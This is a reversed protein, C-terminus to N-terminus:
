GQMQATKAALQKLIPQLENASGRVQTFLDYWEKPAFLPKSTTAHKLFEQLYVRQSEAMSDSWDMRDMELKQVHKRANALQTVLNQADSILSDVSTLVINRTNAQEQDDKVDDSQEQHRRRGDALCTKLELLLPDRSDIWRETNRGMAMEPKSMWAMRKQVDGRRSEFEVCLAELLHSQNRVMQLETEFCIALFQLRAQEEYLVSAFQNLKALHGEQREMKTLYDAMLVPDRIESEAIAEWLPNLVISRSQNISNRLAQLSNEISKETDKINPPDFSLDQMDKLCEIKKSTFVQELLADVYQKETISFISVLRDLENQVDQKLEDQGKLEKRSTGASQVLKEIGGDFYNAFEENLVEDAHVFAELEKICQYMFYKPTNKLSIITNEKAADLCTCRNILKIAKDYCDRISHDMKVSANSLLQQLTVLQRSVNEETEQLLQLTRLNQKQTTRHRNEYRERLSIRKDLMKLEEKLLRIQESLQQNTVECDNADQTYASAIEMESISNRYEQEFQLLEHDTPLLGLGLLEEYGQSELETLVGFGAVFDSSDIGCLEDGVAAMRYRQQKLTEDEVHSDLLSMFEEHLRGYMQSGHEHRRAGDVAASGGDSCTPRLKEEFAECLWGLFPRTSGVSFAWELVDPLKQPHLPKQNQKSTTHRIDKPALIDSRATIPHDYGATQLISALKNHAM